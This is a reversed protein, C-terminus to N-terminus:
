RDVPATHACDQSDAGLTSHGREPNRTTATPVLLVWASIDEAAAGGAVEGSAYRSPAGRHPLPPADWAGDLATKSAHM